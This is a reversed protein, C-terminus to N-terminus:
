QILEISLNTDKCYRKIHCKVLCSMPMSDDKSFLVLTQIYIQLRIFQRRTNQRYTRYSFCTHILCDYGQIQNASSKCGYMYTVSCFILRYGKIQSTLSKNRQELTNLMDSFLINDRERLKDLLNVMYLCQVASYYHDYMNSCHTVKNQCSCMLISVIYIAETVWHRSWLARLFFSFLNVWWMKLRFGYWIREVTHFQQGYPFNWLIAIKVMHLM